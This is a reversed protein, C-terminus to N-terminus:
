TPWRLRWAGETKSVDWKGVASHEVVKRSGADAHVIFGDGSYIACHGHRGFVYLLVDGARLEGSVPDGHASLTERLGQASENRGYIADFSVPVVGASRALIILLGGCDVGNPTRGRNAWPTGIMSRASEYFREGNM